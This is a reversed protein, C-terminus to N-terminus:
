TKARFQFSNSRSNFFACSDISRILATNIPFPTNLGYPFLPVTLFPTKCLPCAPFLPSAHAFLYRYQKIFKYASNNLVTGCIEAYRRSVFCGAIKVSMWRKLCCDKNVRDVVLRGRCLHLVAIRLRQHSKKRYKHYRYCTIHSNLAVSEHTFYRPPAPFVPTLAPFCVAQAHEIAEPSGSYFAVQRSIL